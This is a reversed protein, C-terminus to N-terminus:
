GQRGPQLLPATTPHEYASDQPLAASFAVTLLSNEGRKTTLGPQAFCEWSTHVRERQKGTGLKGYGPVCHYLEMGYSKNGGVSSYIYHQQHAVIIQM